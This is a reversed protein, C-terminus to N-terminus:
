ALKTRAVFTRFDEAWRSVERESFAATQEQSSTILTKAKPFGYLQARALMDNDWGFKRCVQKTDLRAPPPPDPRGRQDREFDAVDLKKANPPIPGNYPESYQRVAKPVNGNVVEVIEGPRFGFIYDAGIKIAIQKTTKLLNM